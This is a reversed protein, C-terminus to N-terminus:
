AMSSLVSPSRRSNSANMRLYQRTSRGPMGLRSFTKMWRPNIPSCGCFGWRHSGAFLLEKRVLRSWGSPALERMYTANVLWPWGSMKTLCSSRRNRCQHPGLEGTQSVTLGSVESAPWHKEEFKSKRIEADVAHRIVVKLSSGSKAAFAKLERFL